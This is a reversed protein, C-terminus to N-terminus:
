PGFAFCTCAARAELTSSRELEAPGEPAREAAKDPCRPAGATRALAAKACLSDPALKVARRAAAVARAHQGAEEWALSAIQASAPSDAFSDLRAAVEVLRARDAPDHRSWLLFGFAQWALPLSAALAVSKEAAALGEAPSAALLAKRAWAEAHEPALALAREVAEQAWPGSRRGHLAAAFALGDAIPLLRPTVQPPPPAQWKRELALPGKERQGQYEREVEALAAADFSAAWAQEFPTGRGLAALLRNFRPRLTESSNLATVLLLAATYHAGALPGHFQAPTARLLEHLKPLYSAGYELRRAALTQETTGITFSAEGVQTWEYYKALGELVWLPALPFRPASLRHTLEHQLVRFQGAGQVLIRDDEDWTTAIVSLGSSRLPAFRVYLRRSAIL